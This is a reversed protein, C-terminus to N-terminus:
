QEKQKLKKKIELLVAPPIQKTQAERRRRAKLIAVDHIDGLATAIKKWLIALKTTEGGLLAALLEMEYRVRRFQKRFAHMKSIKTKKKPKRWHSVTKLLTNRHAQAVSKATKQKQLLPWKAALFSGMGPWLAEALRSKLVRQMRNTLDKQTNKLDPSLFHLTRKRAVANTLVALWEEEDRISSMRRLLTKQRSAISKTLPPLYAEFADLCTRFRRLSIRFDHVANKDARRAALGKQQLLTRYQQTLIQRLIIQIDPTKKQQAV